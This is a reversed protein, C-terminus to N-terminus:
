VFLIYVGYGYVYSHSCSCTHIRMYVRTRIYRCRCVVYTEVRTIARICDWACVCVYRMFGWSNMHLMMHEVRISYLSMWCTTVKVRSNTPARAADCFGWRRGPLSCAYDYDVPLMFVVFLIHIDHFYHTYIYIYIYIICVYICMCVCLVYVCTYM